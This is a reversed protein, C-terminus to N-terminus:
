EHRYEVADVIDLYHRILKRASVPWTYTEMVERTGDGIRVVVGISAGDAIRAKIIAAAESPRDCPAGWSIPSDKRGPSIWVPYYIPGAHNSRTVPLMGECVCDKLPDVGPRTM